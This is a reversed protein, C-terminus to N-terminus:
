QSIKVSLGQISELVGTVHEHYFKARSLKILGHPRTWRPKRIDSRWRAVLYRKYATHVDMLHRYDIGNKKSSTCNAFKTINGDPIYRPYLQRLPGILSLSKHINQYRIYYEEALAIFHEFLWEWNGKSASAWIVCPHKTHTPQYIGDMSSSIGSVMHIATSLIQGSELVMKVVRKDDLIHASRKPCPYTAFINM